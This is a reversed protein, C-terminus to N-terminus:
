YSRERHFHWGVLMITMLALLLQTWESLSPIAAPTPAPIVVKLSDGPWTFTYTGPTLGLSAISQGAWTSSAEVDGVTFGAPVIVRSPSAMNVGFMKSATGSGLTADINSASTGINTPGSASYTDVIVTTPDIVPGIHVNTPAGRVRGSSNNTGLYNASTVDMTGSITAQVDNGVQSFTITAAAKIEFHWGVLLCAVLIRWLLGFSTRVPLSGFNTLLGM